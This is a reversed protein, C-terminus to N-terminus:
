SIKYSILTVKLHIILKKYLIKSLKIKLGYFTLEEEKKLAEFM